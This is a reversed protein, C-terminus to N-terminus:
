RPGILPDLHSLVVDCPVQNGPPYRDPEYIVHVGYDRLQGISHQFAPHADLGSNTTVGPVAVIPTRRGTHECLLGVALTDSIGLVWKNLTNFTAPFVVIADPPPLVDPESPHKYESRVPYGTQHALSAVDIFKTGSPTPIVCVTWGESLALGVLETARFASSSGCVIVYLVSLSDSSRQRM